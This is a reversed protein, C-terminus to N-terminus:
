LRGVWALEVLECLLHEIALHMEQILQTDTSPVQIALDALPALAGGSGTLALTTVGREKAEKFAAVVNKSNGSTSIGLLVDGARGIAQVQRAFVGEYGHDNAFATLYSTDTTLAIAPLGERKVDHRLQSVLETAMHQCDAASGGNGCLLLKNGARYAAVIREAAAVIPAGCADELQARLAIGAQLRERILTRATM